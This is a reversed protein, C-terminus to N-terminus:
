GRRRLLDTCRKLRFQTDFDARDQAWSTADPQRCLYALLMSPERHGQAKAPEEALISM